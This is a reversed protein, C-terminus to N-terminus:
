QSAGGRDVTQVYAMRLQYLTRDLLGKENETLNGRTKEEIIGLLDIAHKALDFDQLSEGTRPDKESSLFLLAQTAFTQILAEFSAEPVRGPGQPREESEGGIVGAERKRRNSEEAAERQRLEGALKEKDARVQEKWGADVHLKREQEQKSKGEQRNQEDTM